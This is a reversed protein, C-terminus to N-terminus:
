NIIKLKPIVELDADAFSGQYVREDGKLYEETKETQATTCAAIM